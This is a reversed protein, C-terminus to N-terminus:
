PRRRKLVAELMEIRAATANDDLLRRAIGALMGIIRAKQVPGVWPTARVAESQEELIALLDKYSRIPRPPAPERDPSASRDVISELRQVRRKLM